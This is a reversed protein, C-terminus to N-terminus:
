SQRGRHHEFEAAPSGATSRDYNTPALYSLDIEQDTIPRFPQYTVHQLPCQEDACYHWHPGKAYLKSGPEPHLKWSM